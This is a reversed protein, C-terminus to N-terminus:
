IFISKPKDFEKPKPPVLPVSMKLRTHVHGQARHDVVAVGSRDADEISGHLVTVTHELRDPDDGVRGLEPIEMPIPQAVTEPV